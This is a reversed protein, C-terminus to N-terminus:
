LNMKRKWYEIHSPTAFTEIRYETIWEAVVLAGDGDATQAFSKDWYASTYQASKLWLAICGLTYELQEQANRVRERSEADLASTRLQRQDSFRMNCTGDNHIYLTACFLKEKQPLRPPEEPSSAILSNSTMSLDRSDGSWRLLLPAMGNQDALAHHVRIFQCLETCSLWPCFVFRRWFLDSPPRLVDSLTRIGCRHHCGYTTKNCMLLNVYSRTDLNYELFTRLPQFMFLASDLTAM